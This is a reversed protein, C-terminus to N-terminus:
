HHHGHMPNEYEVADSPKPPLSLNESLGAYAEISEWTRCKREVAFDPWPIEKGEVWYYTHVSLDGACMIFERIYDICHDSYRILPMGPLTEIGSVSM